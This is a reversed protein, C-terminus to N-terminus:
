FLRVGREGYDTAYHCKRCLYSWDKPNKTYNGSVNHWEYKSADEAGCEQCCSPNSLNKYVWRHLQVYWSKGGKWNWHKDGSKFETNTSNRKGLRSQRIKDKAEDSLTFLGKSGKFPSPRGVNIKHGKTFPM